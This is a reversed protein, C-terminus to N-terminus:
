VTCTPNEGLVHHPNTFTSCYNGDRDVDGTKNLLNEKPVRYHTFILFGNDIGNLGAKEGMDGVTVGPFPLLTTPDRVPVIFGHLGHQQGDSSVLQAFM